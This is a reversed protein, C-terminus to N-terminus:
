LPEIDIHRIDQFRKKLAEEIRDIELGMADTTKDGIDRVFTKADDLNNAGQMIHLIDNKECDNLKEFYKDSLVHGHFSIECKVKIEVGPTGTIKVDHVSKVAPFLEIFEMIEFRTKQPVSKVLISAANSKMIQSAVATLLFGIGVCGLSDVAPMNYTHTYLYCGAAIFNGLVAASDELIVLSINPDHGDYLFQRWSVNTAKKIKAQKVAYGLTILDIVTSVGLISLALPDFVASTGFYLAACGRGINYIGGIGFFVVGAVFAYINKIREYGYPHENDAKKTSQYLGILLLLQNVCDVISHMGEGFLSDSNTRYWAILKIVASFLNGSAASLVVRTSPNLFFKKVKKKETDFDYDDHAYKRLIKLNEMSGHKDISLKEVEKKMYIISKKLRPTAARSPYGQIKKLDENTLLYKEIASDEHIWTQQPFDPVALKSPSKRIFLSGDDVKLERGKTDTLLLREELAKKIDQTSIDCVTNEDPRVKFSITLTDKEKIQIDSNPPKVTSSYRSNLELVRCCKHLHIKIKTTQQWKHFHSRFLNHVVNNQKLLLEQQHLLCGSRHLNRLSYM